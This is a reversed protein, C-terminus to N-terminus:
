LNHRGIYIPQLLLRVPQILINLKKGVSFFATQNSDLLGIWYHVGWLSELRIGLLDPVLFIFARVYCALIAM